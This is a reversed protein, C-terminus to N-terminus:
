CHGAGSELTHGSLPARDMRVRVLACPIVPVAWATHYSGKRVWDGLADLASFLSKGQLACRFLWVGSGVVNKEELSRGLMNRIIRGPWPPEPSHDLCSPCAVTVACGPVIEVERFIKPGRKLLIGAWVEGHLSGPAQQPSALKEVAPCRVGIRTSMSSAKTGGRVGAAHLNCSNRHVVAGGSNLHVIGSSNVHVGGGHVSGCSSMDGHMDHTDQSSSPRVLSNVLHVRQSPSTCPVFCDEFELSQRRKWVKGKLASSCTGPDSSGASRRSTIKVAHSSSSFFGLGHGFMPGGAGSTSKSQLALSSSGPDRMSQGKLASSCNGPKRGCLPDSSGASRRSTSKVALSSSSSSGLGHGFLPGAASCTSKSRLASSSSGPDRMSRAVLSSAGM